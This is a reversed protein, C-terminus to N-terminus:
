SQGDRAKELEAVLQDGFVIRKRRSTEKVETGVYDQAPARGRSDNAHGASPL